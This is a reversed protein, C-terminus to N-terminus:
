FLIYFVYFKQKEQHVKYGLVLGGDFYTNYILEVITKGSRPQNKQRYNDVFIQCSRQLKM